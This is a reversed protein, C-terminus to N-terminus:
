FLSVSAFIRTLLPRRRERRMQRILTKHRRSEAVYSLGRLIKEDIRRNLLDLETEIQRAYEKYTM